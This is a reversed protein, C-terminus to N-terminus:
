SVRGLDWPNIRRQWINCADESKSGEIINDNFNIITERSSWAALEDFLRM